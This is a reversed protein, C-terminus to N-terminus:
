HLGLNMFVHNQELSDECVVLEIIVDFLDTAVRLVVIQQQM